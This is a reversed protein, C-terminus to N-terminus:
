FSLERLSFKQPDIPIDIQIDKILFETSSNRKLKDQLVMRTPIVKGSIKEFAAITMEKLLRDSLSYQHVQRYIFLKTDVWLVQKPYAVNRRKAKLVLKYCEVGDITERGELAVDYSDLIGKGGTMDEYSMDSGLVSDRLAAGQLRIIEEADPYFLYIEDETRLIKQGQEEVSTFEILATDEGQAFSIFTSEKRGFRDNIVMSGEIRSTKHVQNKEMRSIIEEATIGFVATSSLALLVAVLVLKKM